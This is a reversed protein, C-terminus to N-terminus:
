KKDDHDFWVQWLGKYKSLIMPLEERYNFGSQDLISEFAYKEDVYLEEKKLWTKLGHYVIDDKEPKTYIYWFNHASRLKALAYKKQQDYSLAPTYFKNMLETNVDIWSPTRWWAVRNFGFQEYECGGNVGCQGGADFTTIICDSCEAVKKRFDTGPEMWGVFAIDFDKAKLCEILSSYIYDPNHKKFINFISAYREVGIATPIFDRIKDLFDGNGCGIDIYQPNDSLLEAISIIRMVDVKRYTFYSGAFLPFIFRTHHMPPSQANFQLYATYARYFEELDFLM